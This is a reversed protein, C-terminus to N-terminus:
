EGYRERYEEQLGFIGQGLNIPLYKPGICFSHLENNDNRFTIIYDGFSSAWEINVYELQMKPFNNKLYISSSVRAIYKPITGNVWLIIVIFIIFVVSTIIIRKKNNM